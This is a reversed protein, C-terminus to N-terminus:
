GALGLARDSGPHARFTQRGKERRGPGATGFELEGAQINGKDKPDDPPPDGIETSDPGDGPGTPVLIPGSSEAIGVWQGEAVTLAVPQINGPDKPTEPPKDGVETPDPKDGTGTPLLIPGQPGATGVLPGTVLMLMVWRLLQNKM